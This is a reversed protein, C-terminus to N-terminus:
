RTTSRAQRLDEQLASAVCASNPSCQHFQDCLACFTLEDISYLQPWTDAASLNHPLTPWNGLAPSM